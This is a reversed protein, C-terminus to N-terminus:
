TKEKRCTKAEIRRISYMIITGRDYLIRVFPRHGVRSNRFDTNILIIIFYKYVNITYM